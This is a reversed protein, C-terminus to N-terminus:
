QIMGIQQDRVLIPKSEDEYDAEWNETKPIKNKRADTKQTKDAIELIKDSAGELLAELGFHLNMASAQNLSVWEAADVEWNFRTPLWNLDLCELIYNTYRFSGGSEWTWESIRRFLPLSGIEEETERLASLFLDAEGTPVAGGTTGWTGPEEVNASRLIALVQIGYEPHNRIFLVGSGQSGWFTHDAGEDYIYQSVRLM